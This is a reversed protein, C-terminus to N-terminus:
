NQGNDRLSPDCLMMWVSSPGDELVMRAHRSPPPDQAATQLFPQTNLELRCVLWEVKAAQLGRELSERCGTRRRRTGTWCTDQVSQLAFREWELEVAREKARRTEMSATARAAEAEAAGLNATDLARSLRRKERDVADLQAMAEELKRDSERLSAQQVEIEDRLKRIELLLPNKQDNPDRGSMLVSEAGALRAKQLELKVDAERLRAREAFNAEVQQLQTRHTDLLEDKEARWRRQEAIREELMDQRVGDYTAREAEILERQRTMELGMWGAASWGAAALLLLLGILLRSPRTAPRSPALPPNARSM